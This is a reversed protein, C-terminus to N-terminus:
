ISLPLLPSKTDRIPSLLSESSVTKVTEVPITVPSIYLNLYLDLFMLPKDPHDGTIYTFAAVTGDLGGEGYNLVAVILEKVILRNEELSVLPPSINDRSTHLFWPPMEKSKTLTTDKGLEAYSYTMLSASFM